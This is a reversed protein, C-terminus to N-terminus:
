SYFGRFTFRVGDLAMSNGSVDLRACIGCHTYCVPTYPPGYLARSVLITWCLLLFFFRSHSHLLGLRSKASATGSKAHKASWCFHVPILYYHKPNKATIREKDLFIRSFYTLFTKKKGHGWKGIAQIRVPRMCVVKDRMPVVRFGWRNLDQLTFPLSLLLLLFIFRQKPKKKRALTIWHLPSTTLLFASSSDFTFTKKKKEKGRIDKERGETETLFGGLRRRGDTM